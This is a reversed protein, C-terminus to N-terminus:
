YIVYTGSNLNTLTTNLSGYLTHLFIKFKNEKRKFLYDFGTM